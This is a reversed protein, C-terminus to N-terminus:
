LKRAKRFQIPSTKEYKKFVASFYSANDFGCMVAIEKIPKEKFLLLFEKGYKVRIGNIYEFVRFGTGSKFISCFHEPTVSLISALEELSIVNSYNQEIYDLVPTLKRLHMNKSNYEDARESTLLELVISYLCKSYLISKRTVNGEHIETIERLGDEIYKPRRIYYVGAKELPSGYFMQDLCYGGVTISHILFPSKSPEYEYSMNKHILLGQGAKLIFKEQNVIVNGEGSSCQIYQMYSTGISHIKELVERDYEMHVLYLPLRTEFNTILEFFTLM